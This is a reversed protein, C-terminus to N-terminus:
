RPFEIFRQYQQLFFDYKIFVFKNTKNKCSRELYRHQKIQILFLALDYFLQLCTILYERPSHATYSDHKYDVVTDLIYIYTRSM